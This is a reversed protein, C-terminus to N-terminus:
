KIEPVQKALSYRHYNGGFKHELIWRAHPTVYVLDFYNAGHPYGYRVVKRVGQNAAFQRALTAAILKCTKETYGQPDTSQLMESYIYSVYIGGGFADSPGMWEPDPSLNDATDGISMFSTGIGLPRNEEAEWLRQDSIIRTLGTEDLGREACFAIVKEAYHNLEEVINTALQKITLQEVSM